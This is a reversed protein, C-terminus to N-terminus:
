KYQVLMVIVSVKSAYKRKIFYVLLIRYETHRISGGTVHHAYGCYQM